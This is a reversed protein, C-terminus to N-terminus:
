SASRDRASSPTAKGTVSANAATSSRLASRSADGASASVNGHRAAATDDGSSASGSSPGSNPFPIGSGNAVAMTTGSYIDSFEAFTGPPTNLAYQAVPVANIPQRAALEQENTALTGVQIDLWYQAGNFIQGFDLDTTFLGGNGVLIAQQISTGVVNGGSAPKFHLVCMSENLNALQSEIPGGTWSANV